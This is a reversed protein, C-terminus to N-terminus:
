GEVLLRCDAKSSHVCCQRESLDFKWSQGFRKSCARSLDPEYEALNMDGDIKWIAEEELFHETLGKSFDRWLETTGYGAVSVAVLIGVSRVLRRM